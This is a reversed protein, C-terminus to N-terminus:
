QRRCEGNACVYAIPQGPDPALAATFPLARIVRDRAPPKAPLFVVARMPQWREQISHLLDHTVKKQPDGTVVVIEAATYSAALAGALQPLEAGSSRLRGGFSEFIMAPRNRWDASGSLLALRLLNM